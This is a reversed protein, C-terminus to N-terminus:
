LAFVGKHASARIMERKGPPGELKEVQFGISKLMRQVDSKSSYTVLVGNPAMAAHINRFVEETWLEPQVRPTFADFYVLHYRYPSDSFERADMLRKEIVFDSTLEAAVNFPIDHMREFVKEDEPYGSANAYQLSQLLDPAVPNNEIATYWVEMQHKRCEQLTLLTNLGTGFGIELINLRLGFRIFAEKLGAEIFVHRSETLAGHRSHYSENLDAKFITVSGDGTILTENM